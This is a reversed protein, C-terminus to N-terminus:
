ASLSVPGEGLLIYGLYYCSGRGVGVGRGRGVLSTHLIYLTAYVIDLSIRCVVLIYVYMYLRDILYLGLWFLGWVLLITNSKIHIITVYETALDFASAFVM